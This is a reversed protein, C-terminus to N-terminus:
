DGDVVVEVLRDGHEGDALRVMGHASGDLARAVSRLTSLRVDRRRKPKPDGEKPV